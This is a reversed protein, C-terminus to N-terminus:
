KFLKARLDRAMKLHEHLKPQMKQAFAKIAADKGSQAQRGFRAMSTEHDSIMDELYEKDFAAGTLTQLSEHKQKKAKLDPDTDEWMVEKATVLAKLEESAAEHDKILQEAFAKVEANSAKTVALKSSEIEVLTSLAVDKVFDEDREAMEQKQPAASQTPWATVPTGSMLVIAAGTAAALMVIRSM